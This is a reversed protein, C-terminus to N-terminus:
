AAVQRWVTLAAPEHDPQGHKEPEAFYRDLIAAKEETLDYPSVPPRFGTRKRTHFCRLSYSLQRKSEDSRRYKGKELPSGNAEPLTTIDFTGARISDIVGQLDPSWHFWEYAKHQSLFRQHFRREIDHGGEIEAIIELPLPSWAELTRKRGNPSFSCGIKIPGQMGIARIFYVVKV